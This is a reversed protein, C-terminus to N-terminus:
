MEDAVAEDFDAYFDSNERAEAIAEDVDIFEFAEGSALYLREMSESFSKKEFPIVREIDFSTMTMKVTNWHAVGEIAVEEFFRSALLLFTKKSCYCTIKRKDNLKIQVWPKTENGGTEIKGYITKPEKLSPPYRFVTDAHFSASPSKRELSDYLEVSCKLKKSLSQLQKISLISKDPLSFLNGENIARAINQYGMSLEPMSPAIEYGLSEHRVGVLGLVMKKKDLDPYNEKVWSIIMNETCKLIAAVDGFGVSVPSISGGTLRLSFNQGSSM